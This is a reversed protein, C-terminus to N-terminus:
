AGTWLPVGLGSLGGLTFKMRNEANKAFEANM